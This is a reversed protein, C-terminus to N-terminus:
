CYDPSDIVHQIADAMPDHIDALSGIVPDAEFSFVSVGPLAVDGHDPLVDDFALIERTLPAALSSHDHTGADDLLDMTELVNGPSTFELADGAMEEETGAATEIDLGAGSFAFLYIDGPVTEGGHLQLEPLTGENAMSQYDKIVVAGGTDGTLVLDNGDCSFIVESVFFDFKVPVDQSFRYEITEGAEPLSVHLMDAM